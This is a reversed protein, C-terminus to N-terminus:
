KQEGASVISFGACRHARHRTKTVKGLLHLCWLFGLWFWWSLWFDSGSFRDRVTKAGTKNGLITRPPDWIFTLIAGFSCLFQKWICGLIEHMELSTTYSKPAAEVGRSLVPAILKQASIMPFNYLFMCFTCRLSGLKPICESMMKPANQSGLHCWFDNFVSPAFCNWYVISLSLFVNCFM